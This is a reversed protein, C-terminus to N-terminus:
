CRPCWWCRTRAVCWLAAASVGTEQPLQRPRATRLSHRQRAAGVKCPWESDHQQAACVRSAGHGICSPDTAPHVAASAVWSQKVTMIPHPSSCMHHQVRPGQPPRPLRLVFRSARDLPCALPSGAWSTSCEWSFPPCQVWTRPEPQTIHPPPPAPQHPFGDDRAARGQHHQLGGGVRAHLDAVNGGQAGQSALHPARQSQAAARDYLTLPPCAGGKRM